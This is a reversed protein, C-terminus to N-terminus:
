QRVGEWWGLRGVGGWEVGGLLVTPQTKNKKRIKKNKVIELLKHLFEGPASITFLQFKTHTITEVIVMFVLGM